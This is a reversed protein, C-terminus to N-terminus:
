QRSPHAENISRFESISGPKDPNSKHFDEVYEASHALDLASLWSTEEDTGEYGSWKVLYRLPCSRFRRDFKSDLVQSIEYEVGDEVQVPPPPDQIRNPIANPIAPELQSVHFVPHIGRLDNPLQLTYSHTGPQRIIPFPGLYKEALKRTPRTTRIHDSRLYVKDGIKFVPPDIRNRDASASYRKQASELQSKLEKQLDHLDIAFDLARISAIDREPYVSVHPHYGKNAFFPSTGTTESPANNYAFEALPLLSSWNTQQYNCYLRLYQELTQNTRETQGNAEPHYGSTFHLKMNLLTGLSRMFHSHFETGRDSTVHSPIGHKSFVHLLFFKAVDESTVQDTTPIFIAQKTLRDVIVLIATYEDSKPLQEIFDMSISDWPREPIPLPKLKGYPKHRRAKNRGCEVCSKCYHQVFKRYGPWYFERSVLEATKNQGPHGATPHDHKNQLIRLRLDSSEPVYIQKDHMLLGSNSYSWRSPESQESKSNLTQIIERAFTDSETAKVIDSRLSEYDMLSAARLVIEELYTARLSSTLQNNTFVPRCNQPNVRAYDRDGRKPYVDSRRTLADPKEGLKGPRFRILMNFASLFESWRAQQRSLVKTTSFYELNRHDTVVDIKHHSGELYHRWMQFAEFIALLEKDHTDYNLEM